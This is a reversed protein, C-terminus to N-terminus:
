TVEWWGQVKQSLDGPAGAARLIGRTNRLMPTLGPWARWGHGLTGSPLCLPWKGTAM